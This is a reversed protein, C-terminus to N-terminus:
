KRLDYLQHDIADISQDFFSTLRARAAKKDENLPTSLTIYAGDTRGSFIRMYAQYIKAKYPNYTQLDGMRYWQWTLLKKNQRLITTERVSFEGTNEVSSSIIKWTGGYPNTLKNNSSVTESGDRQAYFYGIDLQVSDQDSTYIGSLTLDPQHFIPKWISTNITQQQWSGYHEIKQITGATHQPGATQSQLQYFSLQFLSIVILSATMYSTANSKTQYSEAAPAKEDFDDKSDRWFSGVYFM